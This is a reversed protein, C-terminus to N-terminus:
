GCTVSVIAKLTQDGHNEVPGAWDDDARPDDDSLDVL